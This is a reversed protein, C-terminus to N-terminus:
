ITEWNKSDTPLPVKKKRLICYRKRKKLLTKDMQEM